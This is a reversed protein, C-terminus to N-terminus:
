LPTTASGPILSASREEGEDKPDELSEELLSCQPSLVQEDEVLMHVEAHTPLPPPVQKAPTPRSTPGFKFYTRKMYTSSRRMERKGGERGKKVTPPILSNQNRRTIIMAILVGLSVLVLVIGGIILLQLVHGKKGGLTELDATAILSVWSGITGLIGGEHPASRADSRKPAPNTTQSTEEISVPVDDRVDVTMEVARRSHGLSDDVTLSVRGGEVGHFISEASSLVSQINAAQLVNILPDEKDSNMPQLEHSPALCISAIALCLMMDSNM